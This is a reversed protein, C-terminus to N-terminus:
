CRRLVIDCWRGVESFRGGWWPWYRTDEITLVSHVVDEVATVSTPGQIVEGFEWFTVDAFNRFRLLREDRVCEDGDNGIPPFIIVYPGTFPPLACFGFGALGEWGFHIQSTNKAQPSNAFMDVHMKFQGDARLLNERM